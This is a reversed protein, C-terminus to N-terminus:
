VIPANRILKEIATRKKWSKILKERQRAEKLTNYRESYLLVWPGKNKTYKSLGNNHEKIRRDIDDTSGVYYIGLIASKLVYVYYM